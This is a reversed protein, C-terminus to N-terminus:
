RVAVVEVSGERRLVDVGVGQPQRELLLDVRALGVPVNEIRLEDLWSPLRGHTLRLAGAPADTEMGLCAQLLMFVAGAAWAQPSCAVPYHTPGEGPSRTFGCFLEPLRALDFHRSADFLGGLIRVAHDHYGYRGLGLAILANDHPWISGDHYSMPNYRPEGAAVTRIGWGSYSADSLLTRALRKARAPAVIGTMLAQGPNSTRVRCPRKRGDLAIAYTGLDDLWFAEDFADRLRDARLRLAGARRDHGLSSALEAAGRLAAYVYGQIECLAIPGKALRGDAHFVSDFSDKWGQQDLGQPSRRAYEVFGDGDLDAPGEIWALAREVHPWLREVFARDATQRYYAAALMVFLPTADHSGYYRDFPIEGTAAMEGTRVEHLIKGPQADRAPDDVDAQNAALYSLVGRALDPMLWIAQLATVLGDRGFPTSYWPVGAYPYPGQPTQSTMMVLDAVSRDLWDNFAENSSHLRADDRQARPLVAQVRELAAGFATPRRREGNTQCTIAVELTIAKGPLLALRYVAEEATLRAPPPDLEITTRRRVGDLGRYGFTVGEPRVRVPLLEGRRERRVGRVEFIDVYDAEFRLSLPLRIPALGFNRLVLREHCVGNLLVKSRALHVTGHGLSMGGLTMDPNTLDVALRSNDRKATSGLLLPREGDIRLTYGSLHRTGHHYLGEESMGVPRIDGHRDFVGFSEGHMLVRDNEDAMSSSALVYFRNGIEVIDEVPLREAGESAPEPQTM